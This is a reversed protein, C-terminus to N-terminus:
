PRDMAARAVIKAYGQARVEVLCMVVMEMEIAAIKPGATLLREIESSAKARVAGTDSFM